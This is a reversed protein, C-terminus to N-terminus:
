MEWSGEILELPEGFPNTPDAAPVIKVEGRIINKLEPNIVMTFRFKTTNYRKCLVSMIGKVAGNGYIHHIVLVEDHLFGMAVGKKTRIEFTTVEEKTDMLVTKAETLQM